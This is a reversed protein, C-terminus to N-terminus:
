NVQRTANGWYPARLERKLIKGSANRPLIDVFDVSKPAKFGAIRTRSWNMLTEETLVADPRLVIIAKVAEGWTADPVGIVAVEAIAPHDALANEVEAPYVNEGGSIIMDKVRDHIFLYGDGDMFGADGTHLWGDRITKATEEPRKWYGLMNAGSRTTIEGVEGQPLEEGQSDVVRVEIWPLPKGAARMRPSGEPVHDDPPLAVITGTTETMGYFQVFGCGMTAVAERLLALPIPSAGYGMERICSFDTRAARPHRVLFQLAAPVLFIKSVRFQDIMDFTQDLDFQRQIHCAAGYHVCILGWGTGSIHSVPMAQVASDGPLWRNWALGADRNATIGSTFNRHMLMVGKPRGTTGSTYLQVAVDDPTIAHAPPAPSQADRWAIYSTWPTDGGEAALVMRGTPLDPLMEAVLATFEPGVMILKAEADELIVAIEPGALRWNVPVMVVGVKMAAFLAEFYVDSNKGVYAIRDGAGIGAAHLAAAAQDSQRDCAEFSTHRGEFTFAIAQPAAKCTDRLCAVLDSAPGTHTMGPAEM